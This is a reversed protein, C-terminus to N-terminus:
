GIAAAVSNRLTILADQQRAPSLSALPVQVDNAALIKHRLPSDKWEEGDVLLWLLRCSGSEGRELLKPLEEQQIFTSAFFASSVILIAVPARAITERIHKNFLDGPRLRHDDWVALEARHELPRLASRLKVLWQSDKHAYSVFIPAKTEVRPTFQAHLLRMVGEALVRAQEETEAPRTLTARFGEQTFGQYPFLEWREMCDSFVSAADGGTCPIPFVPRQEQTAYWFTERTGGEGGLLVVADAYKLAEIWERAGTPVEIIHGGRFDPYRANAPYVAPQNAAVVQILYDALPRKKAELVQAFGQAVLYDVGPWGGVVLGFGQQALARGFAEALLSVAGALGQQRGTGAVLVWRLVDM